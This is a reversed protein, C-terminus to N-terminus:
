GVRLVPRATVPRAAPAALVMVTAAVLVGLQAPLTGIREGLLGLLPPGALFATYGLSSVVGVRVAARDAEDAAASM